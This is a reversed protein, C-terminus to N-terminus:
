MDAFKYNSLSKVNYKILMSIFMIEMNFSSRKLLLMVIAMLPTTVVSVDTSFSTVGTKTKNQKNTQQQQTATKTTPNTNSM